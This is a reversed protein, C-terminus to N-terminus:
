GGKKKKKKKKKWPVKAMFMFKLQNLAQLKQQLSLMKRAMKLKGNNSKTNKDHLKIKAM